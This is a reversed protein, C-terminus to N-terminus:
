WVGGIDERKEFATVRWLGAKHQPTEAIVNLAVLGGAGAGVVCIDKRSEKDNQLM